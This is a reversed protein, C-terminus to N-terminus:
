VKKWYKLVGDISEKELLEHRISCLIKICKELESIQFVADREANLKKYIELADRKQDFYGEIIWLKLLDLLYRNTKRTSGKPANKKKWIIRTGEGSPSYVILSFGKYGEDPIGGTHYLQINGPATGNPIIKSFPCKLIYPLLDIQDENFRNKDSPKIIFGFVYNNAKGLLFSLEDDTMGIENLRKIVQCIIVYDMRSMIVDPKDAKRISPRQIVEIM